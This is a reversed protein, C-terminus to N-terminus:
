MFVLRYFNVLVFISSCSIQFMSKGAKVLLRRHIHLVFFQNKQQGSGPPAASLLFSHLARIGAGRNETRTAAERPLQTDRAYFRRSHLCSEPVGRERVAACGPKQGGPFFSSEWVAGDGGCRWRGCGIAVGQGRGTPARSVASLNRKSSGSKQDASM